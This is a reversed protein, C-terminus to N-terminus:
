CWALNRYSSWGDLILGVSKRKRTLINTHETIVVYSLNQHLMYHEWYKLAHFVAYFEQENRISDNKSLNVLSKLSFKLQSVM